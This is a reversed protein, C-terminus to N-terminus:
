SDPALGKPFRTLTEPGDLGTIILDEVRIGGVGTVYAGPEVTLAMSEEVTGEARPSLIPNEHIYLGVGHGTGHQYVGAQGSEALHELTTEHIARLSSGVTAVSVGAQQAALVNEYWESQEATPTGGVVITRTMDSGYGSVTAGFDIVVLDGNELIRGSPRAHPKAGNPGSALITDFSPRESGREAMEWELQRAVRRETQGGRLWPLVALLAEDAICSATRLADIEEADKVRRLEAIVNETSILELEAGAVSISEGLAERGSVTMHESEFGLMKREAALRVLHDNARDGPASGTMVIAVGDPVQQGAQETYRSDTVLTVSDPGLLVLANSGTFGTLWRVNLLSSIVIQDLDVEKLREKLRDIRALHNM